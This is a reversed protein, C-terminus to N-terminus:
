EGEKVRLVSVVLDEAPTKAACFVMTGNTEVDMAYIQASAYATYSEPAPTVIYAYGDSLLREDRVAQVGSVWSSALLTLRIVEAGPGAPGMPGTPGEPGAPGRVGVRTEGEHRIGAVRYKPDYRIM